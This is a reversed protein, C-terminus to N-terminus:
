KTGAKKGRRSSTPPAYPAELGAVVPWSTNAGVIVGFLYGAEAAYMAYSFVVDSLASPVDDDTQVSPDGLDKIVARAQAQADALLPRVRGGAPSELIMGAVSPVGDAEDASVNIGVRALRRLALTRLEALRQQWEQEPIQKWSDGSRM